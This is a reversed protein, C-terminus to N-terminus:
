KKIHNVVASEYTTHLWGSWCPVFVRLWLIRPKAKVEWSNEEVTLILWLFITNCCCCRCFCTCVCIFRFVFALTSLGLFLHLRLYGIPFTQSSRTRLDRKTKIPFITTVTLRMTNIRSWWETATQPIAKVEWSKNAKVTLILWLFVAAVVLAFLYLGTPLTQRIQTRLDRKIKIPFMTVITLRM